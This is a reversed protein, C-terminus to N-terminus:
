LLLVVKERLIKIYLISVNAYMNHDSIFPATCYKGKVHQKNDIALCEDYNGVHMINGYLIGAQVKATADIM